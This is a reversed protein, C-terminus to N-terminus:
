LKTRMFEISSLLDSYSTVWLSSRHHIKNRIHTHISIQNQIAIWPSNAPEGCINQFFDIDFNKVWVRTSKHSFLEEYLENHYEETALWFAIFNIENASYYTLKTSWLLSVITEWTQKKELVKIVANWNQLVQKIFLPSHTAIFIQVDKSFELIMKVFELQLKPHLHLEPEDLTIILDKWSQKALYFNYIISFFAEYWSGLSNLPTQLSWRNVSFFSNSFPKYNNILSLDINDTLWTLEIFKSFADTLFTNSVGDRVDDLRAMLDEIPNTAKIHQYNFDETIRDFKTTNFNGSKIQYERNKDIILFDNDNFRAWSWPNNVSLRIDPKNDEPKTQGDARIYRQDSVIISSLFTSNGRSRIGADFVFWKWIYTTSNPLSSKYNFDEHSIIEIHCKESPNNLCEINFNDAKYNIVPMTLSDLITTKWLGNEGVIINLGSGNKVWDPKNFDWIEFFSESNFNKYNKVKVKKIFM